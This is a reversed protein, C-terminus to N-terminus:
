ELIWAEQKRIQFIDAILYPSGIKVLFIILFREKNGNEGRRSLGQYCNEISHNGIIIVCCSIAFVLCNSLFSIPVPNFFMGGEEYFVRACELVM